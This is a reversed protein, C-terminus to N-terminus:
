KYSLYGSIDSLKLKDEHFSPEFPEIGTTTYTIIKSLEYNGHEDLNVDFNGGQWGNFGLDLNFKINNYILDTKPSITVKMDATGDYEDFLLFSNTRTKYDFNSISVDINIYNLIDKSTPNIKLDELAILINHLIEYNTVYNKANQNLNNYQKETNLILDINSILFDENYTNDSTMKQLESISSEVEIAASKYENEKKIYSFLFVGLISGVILMVAISIILIIIKKNHKKLPYGCYICKKSKESLEKGCEPCSILSM